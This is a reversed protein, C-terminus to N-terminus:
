EPLYDDVGSSLLIDEEVQFEHEDVAELAFVGKLSLDPQQINNFTFIHDLPLTL